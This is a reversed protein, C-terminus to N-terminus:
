GPRGMSATRPGRLPHPVTQLAIRLGSVSAPRVLTRNAPRDHLASRASIERLQSGRCAWCRFERSGGDDQDQRPGPPYRLRVLILNLTLRGTRGNGDLFPHVQEFANHLRALTEPFPEGAGSRRLHSGADNVQDTWTATRVEVLTWSPPRMGAPFPRIDHRRIRQVQVRWCRGTDAVM